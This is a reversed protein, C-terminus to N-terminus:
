KNGNAKVFHHILANVRDPAEQQVWHSVGELLELQFDDVYAASDQAAKVTLYKDETGFILLTRTKVKTLSKLLEPKAFFEKSEKSAACRYYNIARNWTSFERFAYKYAEVVEDHDPLKADELIVSLNRQDESLCLLEPLLPCQFFIMYWSKLSQRWNEKQNKKLAIPHPCNCIVLSDVMAPYLASFTWAIPGGWDHAVVTCSSVGLAEVLARVDEVLERISYSSIGSPKDSKNYGRNDFAVVRYNEQFFALQHRWTFWFEPFGHIFLILPRDEQGAEVYHLKVGNVTLFKHRGWKPDTLISPPPGSRDKRRFIGCGLSIFRLLLNLFVAPIALLFGALIGLVRGQDLM